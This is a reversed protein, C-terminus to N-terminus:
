TLTFLFSGFLGKVPIYKGVDTSWLNVLETCIIRSKISSEFFQAAQLLWPLAMLIVFVRLILM